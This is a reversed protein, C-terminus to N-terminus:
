QKKEKDRLKSISHRGATGLRANDRNPKQPGGEDLYGIRQMLDRKSCM